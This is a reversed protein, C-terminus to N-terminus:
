MTSFPASSTVRQVPTSGRVGASQATVAVKTSSVSSTVRRVTPGTRSPDDEHEDDIVEHAFVQGAIESM